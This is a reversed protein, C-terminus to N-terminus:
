DFMKKLAKKAKKEFKEREKEAKKMAKKQDKSLYAQQGPYAGPPPAAYGPPPAAYGPQQPYAGPPYAGQQPYMPPQGPPPAMQGYGAQPPYGQPPYAGQPPYGAPPAYGPQQPYGQPPYMQGPPAYMQEVFAPAGHPCLHLVLHIEGGKKEGKVAKCTYWADTVRGVALANTNLDLQGFQDDTSIDDHDYLKIIIPTSQTVNQFQFIADWKPTYSNDIVRTQQTQNGVFVKAYADTKGITDMKPINRAEVVKLNLDM